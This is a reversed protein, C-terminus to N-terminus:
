FKSSLIKHLFSWTNGILFPSRYSYNGRNSSWSIWFTSIEVIFANFWSREVLGWSVLWDAMRLVVKVLCDKYSLVFLSKSRLFLLTENTKEIEGWANFKVSSRILCSPLFTQLSFFSAYNDVEWPVLRSFSRFWIIYFSLLSKSFNYIRSLPFSLFIFNKKLILGM